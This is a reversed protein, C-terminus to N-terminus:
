CPCKKELCAAPPCPMAGGHYWTPKTRHVGSFWHREPYLQVPSPSDWVADEDTISSSGPFPVATDLDAPWNNPQQCDIIGLCVFAVLALLVSIKSVPMVEKPILKFAQDSHNFHLFQLEM